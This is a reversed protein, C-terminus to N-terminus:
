YLAELGDNDYAGVAAGLGYYNQPMASLGERETVDVFTGDANQHYLRNWYKRDSKDPQKGDPLPGDIKAGNNFFVDLRGDNDYDFLAVGGGMTEILYKNTTASNEHKFDIGVSQTVDALQVEPVPAASVLCFLVACLIARRGTAGCRRM